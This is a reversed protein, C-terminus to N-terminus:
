PLCFFLSAFQQSRGVAGKRLLQSSLQLASEAPARSWRFSFRGDDAVGDQVQACPLARLSDLVNGALLVAAYLDHSLQLRRVVLASSGVVALIGVTLITIAALLEPITM